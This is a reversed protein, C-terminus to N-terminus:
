LTNDKKSDLDLYGIASNDFHVAYLKSSLVMPICFNMLESHTEYGYHARNYLALKNGRRNMGLARAGGGYLVEDPSINFQIVETSDAKINGKVNELPFHKQKFYGNKESFLLKQQNFYSIQFPSKQVTVVIGKTYLSIFNPTEIIKSIGTKPVLVVAESTPNFTQKASESDSPDGKPIFSTEIIKESYSKITYQGDSTNIELTNNVEKFSEFKRDITQSFSFSTIFLLFLLKKM